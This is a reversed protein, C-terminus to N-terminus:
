FRVQVALVGGGFGEGYFDWNCRFIAESQLLSTSSSHIFCHLIFILMLRTPLTFLCESSLESTWGMPNVGTECTVPTEFAEARCQKYSNAMLGSYLMYHSVDFSSFASDLQGCIM